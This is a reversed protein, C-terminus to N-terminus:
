GPQSGCTPKRSTELSLLFSLRALFTLNPTASEDGIGVSDLDAEKKQREDEQARNRCNRRGAVDDM